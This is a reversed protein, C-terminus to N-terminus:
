IEIRTVSYGKKNLRGDHLLVTFNNVRINPVFLDLKKNNNNRNFHRESRFM